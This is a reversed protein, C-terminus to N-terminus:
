RLDDSAIDNRGILKRDDSYVLDGQSNFIKLREFGAAELGAQRLETDLQTLRLQSMPTLLDRGALRPAVGVQATVRAIREANALARREIQSELVTALVAGLAAILVLSLLSFQGLLSLRLRRNRV